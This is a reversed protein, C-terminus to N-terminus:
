EFDDDEESDFDYGAPACSRVTDRLADAAQLVHAVVNGYDAPTLQAQRLQTRLLLRLNETTEYLTDVTRQCTDADPRAASLQNQLDAVQRQADTKAQNAKRVRDQLSAAAREEGEKRWAEIQADGPQAVAVEVPRSELERLKAKLETNEADRQKIAEDRDKRAKEAELGLRNCDRALAAKEKLAADRERATDIQMDRAAQIHTAAEDREQEAQERADREANYRSLLEQYQKHSTIDGDKVAQVLEAPASPKAAAYLLTPGLEELAKQQRPSSQDFLKSVQLLREAAKRNLGVSECWAGFTNESHQNNHAQSMIDCAGRKLQSMIDCSGCLAEHAIAVGDAMRRLGIEAMRKGGAFEREALHLDQVTQDDLGSYDFAPLSGNGSASSATTRTAPVADAAKPPQPSTDAPASPLGPSNNADEGSESTTSTEATSEASAADGDTTAAAAGTPADTDKCETWGLEKATRDLVAQLEEETKADGTRPALVGSIVWKGDEEVRCMLRPVGAKKRVAFVTGYQNKYQRSELKDEKKHAFEKGAAIRFMILAREKEPTLDKRSGDPYFFRELLAAKAAIGKKNQACGISMRYRGNTVYDTPRINARFFSGFIERNPYNEAIWNSVRELFEFDLSAIYCSCKGQVSGGFRTAYDLDRSMRCEYGQVDKVFGHGEIYKDTGWPMLYPCGDCGKVDRNGTNEAATSKQVTRGCKCYYTNM